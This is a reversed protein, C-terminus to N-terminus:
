IKVEAEISRGPRIRRERLSQGPAAERKSPRM